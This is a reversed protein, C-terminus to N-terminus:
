KDASNVSFEVLLTFGKFLPVRQEWTASIVTEGGEKSIELDDSKLMKINDISARRDFSRRIETVTASKLDEGTAMGSIVKKISLLDIYLPILKLGILLVVAAVVFYFLLPVFGIGRQLRLNANRVIANM